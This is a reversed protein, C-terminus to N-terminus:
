HAGEYKYVKWDQTYPENLVDDRVTFYFVQHTKALENIERLAAKRKDEDFTTLIDDLVIPLNSKSEAQEQIVALRLALYLQRLTGTSLQSPRVEDGQATTVSLNIGGDEKTFFVNVYNGESLRQFIESIRKVTAPTKKQEFYDVTKNLLDLAVRERSFTRAKSRITGLCEQIEAQKKELEDQSPYSEIIQKSSGFEQNIEKLESDLMLLQENLHNSQNQLATIAGGPEAAFDQAIESISKEIEDLKQATANRTSELEKKRAMHTDFNNKNEEEKALREKCKSMLLSVDENKDLEIDPICLRALHCYQEYKSNQMQAKRTYEENLQQHEEELRIRDPLNRIARKQEEGSASVLTPFYSEIFTSWESEAQKEQEQAALYEATNAATQEQLNHQSTADQQSSTNQMATKLSFYTILFAILGAGLIIGSTLWNQSVVFIGGAAVLLVGFVMLSIALPSVFNKEEQAQAKLKEIGALQIKQQELLAQKSLVEQHAAALTASLEEAKQMVSSCDAQSFTFATKPLANLKALLATRRQSLAQIDSLQLTYEEVSRVCTEIEIGKNLVKLDPQQPEINQLHELDQLTSEQQELLEEKEKYASKLSELQMDLETKQAAFTKRSEETAKRNAELQRLRLTAEIANKSNAELEKYEKVLTKYTKMALGLSDTNKAIGVAKKINEGLMDRVDIPSQALGYQSSLFASLSSSKQPDIAAIESENTSWINLFDTFSVGDLYRGWMESLHAPQLLPEGSQAGKESISSIKLKDEGEIITAHVRREQHTDDFYSPLINNRDKSSPIGFLAYNLAARTTSKGTGNKGIIVNVGASLDDLTRDQITGLSEIELKNLHM